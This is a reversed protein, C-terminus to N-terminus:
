GTTREQGSDQARLADKRSGPKGAGMAELASSEVDSKYVMQEFEIGGDRAEDIRWRPVFKSGAFISSMLGNREWHDVLVASYVHHVAFAIIAWMLLHHVLRMGQEGFMISPVWGFLAAFPETGHLAAMGFGTVTQVLFLFFVVLYTGGALANHGLVGPLDKSLFSYFATQTRVESLHKRNTPLFATWRAFQNGAFLWYTRVVGSALFIWAALLHVSRVVRMTDVNFAFFFPDAIYAGTVTLVLIASFTVWHTVRVPVEWVYVRVRELGEPIRLDDGAPPTPGGAEPARLTPDAPALIATM